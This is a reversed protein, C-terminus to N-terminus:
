TLVVPATWPCFPVLRGSAGVPTWHFIPPSASTVHCTRLLWPPPYWYRSQGAEAVSDSSHKWSWGSSKASSFDPRSKASPHGGEGGGWSSEHEPGSPIHATPFRSPHYQGPGAGPTFPRRPARLDCTIIWGTCTLTPV